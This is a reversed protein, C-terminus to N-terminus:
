LKGDAKLRILVSERIEEPTEDSIGSASGALLADRLIQTQKLREEKDRLADRIVESDSVFNGTAIQAQIFLEQKETVSISKKITAM